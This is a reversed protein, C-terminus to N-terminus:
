KWILESGNVVVFFFPPPSTSNVAVVVLLVPIILLFLQFHRAGGTFQSGLSYNIVVPCVKLLVRPVTKNKSSRAVSTAAFYKM